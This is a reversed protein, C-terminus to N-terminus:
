SVPYMLHKTTWILSRFNLTVFGSQAQVALAYSKELFGTDFLWTLETVYRIYLIYLFQIKATVVNKTVHHQVAIVIINRIIKRKADTYDFKTVYINEINSKLKTIEM